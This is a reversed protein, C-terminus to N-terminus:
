SNSSKKIFWRVVEAIGVGLLSGSVVDGPYHAGLYIRSFGVLSAVTYWLLRWRPAYRSLMRAGAFATASHGSPFSWNGPKKGVVVARVIDIFPRRRRFYKKVPGEVILGAMWIPLTIQKLLVAAWARHFPWTLAGAMIWAWGGGFWLSLQYFFGDIFPTRPTYNNILIFLDTDYTQFRSIRPHRKLADRLLRRQEALKQPKGQLAPDTVKQIREAVAEYAPGELAVAEAGAAEIAKAAKEVENPASETAEQVVEAAVGAQDAPPAAIPSSADEAVDVAQQDAADTVLQEIVADAKEPTDISELAEELSEEVPKAAARTKEDPQETNVKEESSKQSV